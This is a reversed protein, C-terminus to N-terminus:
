KSGQTFAKLKRDSTMVEIVNRERRLLPRNRSLLGFGVLALALCGGGNMVGAGGQVM